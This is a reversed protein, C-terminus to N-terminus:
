KGIKIVGYIANKHTFRVKSVGEVIMKVEGKNAGIPATDDAFALMRIKKETTIETNMKTQTVKNLVLILVAPTMIDEHKVGTGTSVKLQAVMSELKM